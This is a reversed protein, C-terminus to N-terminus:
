EKKIVGLVCALWTLLLVVASIGVTWQWWVM